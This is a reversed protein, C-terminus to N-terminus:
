ISVCEYLVKGVPQGFGMDLRAGEQTSSTAFSFDDPNSVLQLEPEVCVQSCVEALLTATLDRVENHRLSPLGLCFMTWQFPLEVPVFLLPLFLLGGM